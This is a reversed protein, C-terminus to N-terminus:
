KSHKYHNTWKSLFAKDSEYILHAGGNTEGECDTCAWCHVCNVCRECWVCDICDKCDKCNLCGECNVLSASCSEASSKSFMTQIWGNHNEDVWIKVRNITITKLKSM